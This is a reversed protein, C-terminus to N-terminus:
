TYLGGGNKFFIKYIKPSSIANKSFINQAEQFTWLDQSFDKFNNQGREVGFM